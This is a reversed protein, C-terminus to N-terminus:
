VPGTLKGWPDPVDQVLAESKSRGVQFGEVVRWQQGCWLVLYTTTVVKGRRLM